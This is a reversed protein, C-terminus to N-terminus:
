TLMAGCFSCDTKRAMCIKEQRISGCLPEMVVVAKLGWTAGATHYSLKFGLRQEFSRQVEPTESAGKDGWERQEQQHFSCPM